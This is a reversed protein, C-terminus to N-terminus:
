LPLNVTERRAACSPVGTGDRVDCRAFMMPM